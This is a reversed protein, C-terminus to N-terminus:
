SKKPSRMIKYTSYLSDKEKALVWIKMLPGWLGTIKKTKLYDFYAGFTAFHKACDFNRASVDRGYGETSGIQINHVAGGGSM